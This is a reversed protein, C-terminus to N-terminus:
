FWKGPSDIFLLPNETEKHSFGSKFFFIQPCKKGLFSEAM